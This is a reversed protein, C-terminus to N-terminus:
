AGVKFREYDIASKILYGRNSISKIISELTDVKEQQMAIRLNLKIIDQDAEIYTPVESKIVSLRFPEWGNARLDEEPMVGRYYDSKLLVLEKREQEMKRLLLREETFTRLYKSHLKPIKLAEEGLETRDMNCDEAWMDLIDDLKM